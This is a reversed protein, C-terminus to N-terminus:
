CVRWLMLTKSICVSVVTMVIERNRDGHMVNFGTINNLIRVFVLFHGVDVVRARQFRCKRCYRKLKAAAAPPLVPAVTAGGPSRSLLM